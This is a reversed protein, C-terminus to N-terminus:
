QGVWAIANLLLRVFSPQHFDEASGLRTHFQRGDRRRVWALPQVEGAIRGNLLFMADAAVGVGEAADLCSVFPEVGELVPHWRAAAEIEVQVQRHRSREPGSAARAAAGLDSWHRAVQLWQGFVVVCDADALSELDADVTDLEVRRCQIDCRGAVAQQFSAMAARADADPQYAALAVHTAVVDPRDTAFSDIRCYPGLAIGDGPVGITRHAPHV